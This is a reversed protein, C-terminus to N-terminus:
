RGATVFLYGYRDRNKLLWAKLEKPHCTYADPGGENRIQLCVVNPIHAIHQFNNKIGAKAYEPTNRLINNQEINASVDQSYHIRMKGDEFAIRTRLGTPDISDDAIM